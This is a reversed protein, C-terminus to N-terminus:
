RGVEDHRGPAVDEPTLRSLVPLLWTDLRDLRAGAEDQGGHLYRGSGRARQACFRALGHVQALEDITGTLDARRCAQELRQVQAGFEQRAAFLRGIDGQPSDGPGPDM